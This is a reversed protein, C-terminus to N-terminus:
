PLPIEVKLSQYRDCMGAFKKEIDASTISSRYVSEVFASWAEVAGANWGFTSLAALVNQTARDQPVANDRWTPVGAATGRLILCSALAPNSDGYLASRRNALNAAGSTATRSAHSSNVQGDLELTAREFWAELCQTNACNKQRWGLSAGAERLFAKQDSAVARAAVYADAYAADMQMLKPSACVLRDVESPRTDCNVSGAVASGASAAWLVFASIIKLTQM